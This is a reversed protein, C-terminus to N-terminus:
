RKGIRHAGGHGSMRLHGSRLPSPHGYGHSPKSPPHDFMHSTGRDVREGMNTGDGGVVTRQPEPAKKRDAGPHASTDYDGPNTKPHPQRAGKSQGSESMAIAVAQKPNTVQPGTKSGSHLKGEKFEHMVTHVAERKEGKTRPTKAPM